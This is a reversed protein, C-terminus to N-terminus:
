NWCQVYVELTSLVTNTLETAPFVIEQSLDYFNFYHEFDEEQIFDDTEITPIVIKGLDNFYGFECKLKYM